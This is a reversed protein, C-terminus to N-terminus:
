STELTRPWPLDAEIAASLQTDLDDCTPCDLGDLCRDCAIVHETRERRALDIPTEPTLLRTHRSPRSRM